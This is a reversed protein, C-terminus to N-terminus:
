IGEDYYCKGPRNNKGRGYAFAKQEETLCPCGGNCAYGGATGCCEPKCENYAFLFKSRPGNDTGDVAPASTDNQDPQSPEVPVDPIGNGQFVVIKDSPILKSAEAFMEIATPGKYTTSTYIYLLLFFALLLMILFLKGM